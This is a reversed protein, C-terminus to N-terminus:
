LENLKRSLSFALSLACEDLVPNVILRGSHTMDHTAANIVVKLAEVNAKKTTGDPFTILVDCM